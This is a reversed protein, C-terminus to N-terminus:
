SPQAAMGNMGQLKVELATENLFGASAPLRAEAVEVVGGECGEGRDAGEAPLALTEGFNMVEEVVMM